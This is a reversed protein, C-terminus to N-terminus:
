AKRIADLLDGYGQPRVSVRSGTTRPKNAVNLKATARGKCHRICQSELTRRADLDGVDIAVILMEPETQFQKLWSHVKSSGATTSAHAFARPLPAQTQGVYMIEDTEPHVYVYVVARPKTPDSLQSVPLRMTCAPPLRDGWSYKFSPCQRAYASLAPSGRYPANM